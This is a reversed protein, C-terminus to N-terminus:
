IETTQHVCIKFLNFELANSCLRKIETLLRTLIQLPYFGKIQVRRGSIITTLQNM